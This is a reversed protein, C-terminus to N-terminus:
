FQAYLAATEGYEIGYVGLILTVFIFFYIIIWKYVFTHNDLWQLINVNKEKLLSVIFVFVTGLIIIFFNRNTPMISALDSAKITFLSSKIYNFFM